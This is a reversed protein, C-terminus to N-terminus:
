DYSLRPSFDGRGQPVLDLVHWLPWVLDVHRPEQGPEAPAHLLESSWHHRIGEPSRRFVMLMPMQAGSATESGYARNFGSGGSSLLRLHRWGRETAFRRLEAAPAKGVAVLATRQEIHPAAGDLGDLISTCSPCPPGGPAFMWGYIVLSDRGPLFLGALPMKTERPAPSGPRGADEFCVDEEVLGGPPLARRLAAVAEIQGRLAREAELLEDRRTRYFASEGPVRRDHFRSM